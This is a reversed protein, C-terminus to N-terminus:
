RCVCATAFSVETSELVSTVRYSSNLSALLENENPFASFAAINKVDTATIRLLTGPRGGAGKGFSQLTSAKDTTTSTVSNFFVTSGKVYVHSIQTLPQDLGRFVTCAVSPLKGLADCLLKTFASWRQVQESDGTRIILNFVYFVSDERSRGYDRADMTYVAISQAEVLTVGNQACLSQVASQMVIRSAAQVMDALMPALAARPQSPLAQMCHQLCPLLDPPTPTDRRYLPLPQSPKATPDMAVLRRFVEAASPRKAADQHLCQQPLCTVSRCPPLPTPPLRVQMLPVFDPPFGDIPAPPLAPRVGSKVQDGILSPSVRHFPVQGTYCEWMFIGFAYVDTATSKSGGSFLEPACWALTMAANGGGAASASSAISSLLQVAGGFDCLKATGGLTLMVNMSKIDGHIVGCAHLYDLASAVERACTLRQRPLLEEDGLKTYVTGGGVWEMLIFPSDPQLCVGFIAVCCPHRVRGQVQVEAMFDRLDRKTLVIKVKPQKLAFAAGNWFV